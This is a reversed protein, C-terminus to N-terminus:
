KWRIELCFSLVGKQLNYIFNLGHPKKRLNQCVLKCCCPTFKTGRLWATKDITSIFSLINRTYSHVSLFDFPRSKDRM